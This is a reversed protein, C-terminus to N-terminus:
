AQIKHKEHIIQALNLGTLQKIGSVLYWLSLMLITISPVTIVIFSMATMKGLEENFLVTGPESKLMYIALTFNLISSTVFSLAILFTGNILLKNFKFDGDKLAAVKEEILAINIIAPNLLIKKILPYKSKLSAVTAIGFIAPVSAEKVAFWFANLQMISFSGTLSTNILGIISFFNWKKSTVLDYLGYFLPFSIATIVGPLPGLFEESSFRTLIVSPIVINFGINFLINEKKEPANGPEKNKM